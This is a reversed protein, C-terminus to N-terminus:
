YNNLKERDTPDVNINATRAGTFFKGGTTNNIQNSSIPRMEKSSSNFSSTNQDVPWGNIYVRYGNMNLYVNRGTLKFVPGNFGSPSTIKVDASLTYVENNVDLLYPPAGANGHASLWSGDITTAM